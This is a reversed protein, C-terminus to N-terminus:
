DAVWEKVKYTVVEVIDATFKVEGTLNFIVV